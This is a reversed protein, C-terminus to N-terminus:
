SLKTANDHFCNGWTILWNGNQLTMPISAISCSQTVTNFTQNLVLKFYDVEAASDISGAAAYDAEIAANPSIVLLTPEFTPM